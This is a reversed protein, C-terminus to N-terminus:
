FSLAANDQRIRAYDRLVITSEGMRLIPKVFDVSKRIKRRRMSNVHKEWTILNLKAAQAFISEV